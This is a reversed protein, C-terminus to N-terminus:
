ATPQNPPINSPFIVKGAMRKQFIEDVGNFINELFELCSFLLPHENDHILKVLEQFIDPFHKNIFQFMYKYETDSLQITTQEARSMNVIFNAIQNYTDEDVTYKPDGRGSFVFPFMLQQGFSTLEKSFKPFGPILYRLFIIASSASLPILKNPFKRRTANFATHVIFRLIPNLHSNKIFEIVAQNLNDKYRDLLVCTSELFGHDNMNLLIGSIMTAMSSERFITEPNVTRDIENQFCYRIFSTTIGNNNMVSLLKQISNKTIEYDESGRLWSKAVQCISRSLYMSPDMLVRTFQELFCEPLSTPFPSVYPLSSIFTLLPYTTSTPSLATSWCSPSGKEIFQFVYSPNTPNNKPAFSLQMDNTSPVLDNMSFIMFPSKPDKMQYIVVTELDNKISIFLPEGQATAIPLFILYEIDSLGIRKQYFEIPVLLEAFDRLIEMSQEYSNTYNVVSNIVLVALDFLKIDNQNIVLRFTDLDLRTYSFFRIFDNCNFIRHFSSFHRAMDNINDTRDQSDSPQSQAISRNKGQTIAEKLWSINRCNSVMQSFQTYTVKEGPEQIKAWLEDANPPIAPLNEPPIQLNVEFSVQPLKSRDVSISNSASDIEATNYISPFSRRSPPVPPNLFADADGVVEKPDARRFMQSHRNAQSDIPSSRISAAGDSSQRQPFSIHQSPSCNERFESQVVQDSFALPTRKPQNNPGNQYAQQNQGNASLNHQSNSQVSQPFAICGTNSRFNSQRNPAQPNFNENPNPRTSSYPVNSPPFAQQPNPPGCNGQRNSPRQNFRSSLEPQSVLPNPNNKLPQASCKPRFNPHPQNNQNIQNFQGTQNFQYPQNPQNVQNSQNPQNFRNAQNFQHPQNPQNYYNPRTPQNNQNSVNPRIPQNYQNMQNPNPQSYQNPQNFQNPRSPQNNQSSNNPRIPRNPPNFQNPLIPQNRQNGEM